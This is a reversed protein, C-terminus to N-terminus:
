IGLSSAIGENFPLYNLKLSSINFMIPLLLILIDFLFLLRMQGKNQLKFITLISNHKNMNFVLGNIIPSDQNTSTM